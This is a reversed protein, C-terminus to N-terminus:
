IKNREDENLLVRLSKLIKKWCSVCRTNKQKPYVYKKYIALTLKADEKSLKSKLNEFLDKLYEYEDNSLTTEDDRLSEKWERYEKSRKDLTEYYEKTKEM